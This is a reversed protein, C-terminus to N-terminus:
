NDNVCTTGRDLCFVIEVINKSKKIAKGNKTAPLYYANSLGEIIPYRLLFKDDADFNFNNPKGWEDIDFQVSVKYAVGPTASNLWQENSKFIPQTVFMPEWDSKESLSTLVESRCLALQNTYQSEIKTILQTRYLGECARDLNTTDNLFHFHEILESFMIAAELHCGQLVLKEAAECSIPQQSNNQMESASSGTTTVKFKENLQAKLMGSFGIFLCILGFNKTIM